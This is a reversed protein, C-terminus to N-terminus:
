TRQETNTNEVDPAEDSTSGTDLQSPRDGAPKGFLLLGDPIKFRSAFEEAIVRNREELWGRYDEPEATNRKEAVDRLDIRGDQIKKLIEQDAEDDPDLDVAPALVRAPIAYDPTTGHYSFFDIPDEEFLGLTKLQEQLFNVFPSYENGEDDQHTMLLKRDKLSKREKDIKDYDYGDRFAGPMYPLRQCAEATAAELAEVTEDLATQRAHLSQEALILVALPALDLIADETLGLHWQVVTLFTRASGDIGGKLPVRNYLKLTDKEKPPRTLQEWEVGLSKCLRERSSPRIGATQMGREWRSIQTKSIKSEAALRDQSWDGRQKRYHKLAEPNLTDTM